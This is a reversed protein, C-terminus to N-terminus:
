GIHSLNLLKNLDKQMGKFDRQVAAEDAKDPLPQYQMLWNGNPDLLLVAHDPTAAFLGAANPQTAADRLWLLAPQEYSLRSQIAALDVGEQAIVVRQVRERKSGLATHLQRTLMLEQHCRDDCDHRLVQVLTWKGRLPDKALPQGQADRLPLPPLTQTPTVLEGYNVRGEPSWGPFFFHAIYASVFPAFFLVALLLFQARSRLRNIPPTVPDTM